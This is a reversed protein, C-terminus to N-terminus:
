AGFEVRMQVMENRGVDLRLADGSTTLDILHHGRANLSVARAPNRVFRLDASAGVGACEIVRATVADGDAAPRLATLLLNSADLHALWGTAGVHPPGHTTPVVVPPTVLGLATQAPSLRDVGIGLDFTRCEEGPTILLVDLMFKGQRQQFPLGGPFIVTNQSGQRLELYEPSQPRAHTTLYGFGNVGRLLPEREDRWAFRAGYYAHWPYGSPPQTPNIEIRLDLLPRGIWVQFRQRYTAITQQQADVILGETVVEGLAPGASTVKISGLRMASGPNFVLMQGLRATRTRHDRIARLGGTQPDIEAEFFENRLSKEDALKMRKASPKVAPDGGKPLWAFGLAPIEVVARLTTGDVQCAKVPDGTPLLHPTDPLDM